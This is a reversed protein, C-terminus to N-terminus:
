SSVTPEPRGGKHLRCFILRRPNVSGKGRHGRGQSALCFYTNQSVGNERCIEAVAKSGPSAEQLIGVIQAEGFKSKKM